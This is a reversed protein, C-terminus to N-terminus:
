YGAVATQVIAFEAPSLLRRIENAIRRCAHYTAEASRSDVDYGYEDAWTEFPAHVGESDLVVSHLVDLLEPAKRTARIPWEPTTGYWLQRVAHARDHAHRPRSTPTVTIHGLGMRYDITFTRGDPRSLTVRYHFMSAPTKGDPSTMPYFREAPSPVVYHAHLTLGLPALIALREKATEPEHDTM